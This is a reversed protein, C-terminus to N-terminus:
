QIDRFQVNTLKYNPNSKLQRISELIKAQSLESFGKLAAVKGETCAKELEEIDTINLVQYLQKVKKAGIGDIKLLEILSLPYELTLEDYFKMKGTNVFETIKAEIAKGIGDIDSLKNLRALEAVDDEISKLREAANLYANIKFFNEGKIELLKAIYQLIQIIKDNM